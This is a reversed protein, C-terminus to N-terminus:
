VTLHGQSFYIPLEDRKHMQVGVKCYKDMKITLFEELFTKEANM